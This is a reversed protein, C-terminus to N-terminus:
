PTPEKRGNPEANKAPAERTYACYLTFHGRLIDKEKPKIWLYRIDFMAGEAQLDYLFRVIAELTGDWDKCEIPMEFVDGLDKEDGAQRNGIRLNNKTAQRDMVSLWHVDMKRNAPFRPLSRTLEQHRAEWYPRRDVLKRDGEIEGRVSGQAERVSKWREIRPKALIATGGFVVVALTAVGLSAERPTFKM